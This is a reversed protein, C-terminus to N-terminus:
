GFIAQMDPSAFGEAWEIVAADTWASLMASYQDQAAAYRITLDVGDGDQGIVTDPTLPQRLIIHYGYESEVIGSLGYNEDLALVAEEFEPVMYGPEFIYGDPNAATGTDESYQTMYEDFLAILADRDDQVAALEAQLTTITDLKQAIEDESLSEGTSTDVTVLLIHKANMLGYGTIYEEAIDDPCLEGYQGFATEFLRDSLVGAGELYMVFDLDVNQAALAEEFSTLEEDSVAGDGDSDAYSALIEARDEETLALGATEAANTVAHYQQITYETLQILANGNTNESSLEGVADWSTLTQGYTAAMQVYYNAYYSLWYYYEQWTIDIGASTGVVLDPAYTEYGTGGQMVGSVVTEGDPDAAVPADSVPTEAGAEATQDANDDYYEVETGSGCGALLSLLMAASALLAILKKM